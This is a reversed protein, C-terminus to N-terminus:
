GDFDSWAVSMTYYTVSAEWGYVMAPDCVLTGSVNEYVRDKEQNMANAVALDLDGDNDWDGWAISYTGEYAKGVYGIEDGLEMAHSTASSATVPAIPLILVAINICVLSFILNIFLPRRFRSILKLTNQSKSKM